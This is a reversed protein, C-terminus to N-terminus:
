PAIGNVRAECTATACKWSKKLNTTPNGWLGIKDSGKEKIFYMGIHNPNWKSLMVDSWLQWGLGKESVEM